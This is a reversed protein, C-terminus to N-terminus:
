LKLIEKEKLELIQIKQNSRLISPKNRSNLEKLLPRKSWWWRTRKKKLATTTVKDVVVTMSPLEM